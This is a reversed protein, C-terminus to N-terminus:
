VEALFKKLFYVFLVGMLQTIEVLKDLAFPSLLVV